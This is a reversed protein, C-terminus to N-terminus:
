NVLAASSVSTPGFGMCHKAHCEPETQQLSEQGVEEKFGPPDAGPPLGDRSVIIHSPVAIGNEQLTRYVQRRDQLADQLPLVLLAVLACLTM